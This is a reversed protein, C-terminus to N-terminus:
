PNRELRRRMIAIPPNARQPQKCEGLRHDLNGCFLVAHNLVRLVAPTKGLVKNFQEAGVFFFKDLKFAIHRRKAGQPPGHANRNGLRTVANRITGQRM